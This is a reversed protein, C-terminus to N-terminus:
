AALPLGSRLTDDAGDDLMIQRVVEITATVVKPDFQTGACRELEALAEDVTRCARYPRDTIMANFADCV